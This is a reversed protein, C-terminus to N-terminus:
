YILVPASWKLKFTKLAPTTDPIQSAGAGFFLVDSDQIMVGSYPVSVTKHQLTLSPGVYADYYVKSTGKFIGTAPTFTLTTMPSLANYDYWYPDDPKGKGYRTPAKGKPMSMKGAASMSVPLGELFGGYELFLGNGKADYNLAANPHLLFDMEYGDIYWSPKKNYWGGFLDVPAFFGDSAWDKGYKYWSVTTEITRTDPDLWVLGGLSGRKSYIPVYLPACLKDDMEFWLLKTSASVSTGDALKGAFKVSGNAGITLTVYGCGYNPNGVSGFYGIDDDPIGIITTYYGKLPDLLATNQKNAFLDRAGDICLWDSGAKGGRIIGLIRNQRVELLLEEGTRATMSVMRSDDPFITDWAKASFSVTGAQLVAKATLTGTLKSVNLTLTGYLDTPPTPSDFDGYYIYGIYAGTSSLADDLDYPTIYPVDAGSARFVATLTRNGTVTFTYAPLSSVTLGNEKWASFAYGANASATVTCSTGGSKTGGGTATGGAAPSSTTAITYVPPTWTVYDVWGCDAGSSISGDKVYAWKLTHTGASLTFSRQAWASEGSIAGSQETNDIFFKLKDYSAESSVRWWFTLTGPGTVTTQLASQQNHGIAGSQAASGGYHSVASQGFWATSGSSTWTLAANDLATALPVTPAGGGTAVTYTQTLQNNSENAELTIDASDIFARYTKTGTASPATFTHTLSKTAGAALVGISAWGDGDSGVLAEASRDIWCDLYGANGSVTGQNKVTVTATVSGGPVVSSSSFSIAQVIFDPRQQVQAFNAVLTRSATVTFTYAPTTAVVVGGETWSTFTYGSNPTATLTRSAGYALGSAAGSVTGGASPSATASVTYTATPTWVVQDVWGCDFGDYFSEDKEYWWRLVHTGAPIAHTVLTWGKEGSIVNTEVGDISFCLWDFHEESSVKWWFSLAGPGVVTTQMTSITDDDDLGGSQAAHQGDHSTQTQGIWPADGGTMFALATNDLAVELPIAELATYTATLQNNNENSEETEDASDVFARYTKIGAGPPVAFAHHFTHSAAAALTNTRYVWADGDSGVPMENVEDLWVDTYGPVGPGSGINKITISATMSGGCTASPSSFTISEVIFDPLSATARFNATLTRAGTVTFTYSPSTSMVNAGETWNVFAYGSNASATVTCTSGAVKSGGGTATGGASPSAATTITYSQTTPVWSAMDVFGADLGRNVSGDKSYTWTLTHSGSGLTVSRQVWSLNEGSISAQATGDVSFTLFDYNAESSVAWQFSFTGPGTVTTQLTSSQNYSILGSQAADVNDKTTTTQGYWSATGSTTWTLGAGDLATALPISAAFNATLTKNGTVTFTYAASSSVVTSGEKWNVFAYGSNPTATLTCSSGSAVVGGGTVTGGASPVATATVTYTPVFNATLTRNGTVTFAYTASTSVVTSGEKWNVFAYGSSPTATLTCSSGAPVSGAGSVSGSASPVASASITYSTVTPTWVVQDVWGCDSGVSVIHDKVYAWQVTHSGAAISYTKQQWDVTGSIAGSQEAGDIYFKLFDYTAESSVKWWFTLTGPGTVTTQMISSQSNGIPGSQAASAGNKKTATQGFWGAGSGSSTFTLSTNDLATQLSITTPVFCATLTQADNLTFTYSATTSVVTGAANKWHVFSHGSAPTATVTRSSGAAFTGGGSTTGGATPSSALTITYNQTTPTWVVRDVFGADSGGNVSGDKIYTWQLTHSGSGSVTYSKQAWSITPGSIAAKEAGDLYFKLWDYNAESSVAWYFTLTGPGTVTTQLTSSQNHGIAGSRAADVGDSTVSSQGYWLGSGSTTWTLGTTDLATALTINGATFNATLTRSGTVTFSYSASSSVVTSGETWNVFSYGSNPTATVTCSANATKTGGGSVSGGASPSASLTVTYSGSTAGLTLDQGWLNGVTSDTSRRLTVSREASTQSGSIAKLKLTESTTTGNMAYSYMGKANTTKTALLTGSNNRIEVSTGSVPSGSANLVRGSLLKMESSPFINYVLTAIFNFEYETGISPLTYWVDSVGAWGMNLHTYLSGAQYGYGDALIAHGNYLENGVLKHIALFVPFNNDLNVFLANQTDIASIGATTGASIRAASTYKFVSKLTDPVDSPYAGTGGANNAKYDSKLAVGTDYCIKGIAQRQTASLSAGKPVDVMSGWAYTGGKMTLNQTVNNVKCSFTGASISATPYAHFKMLQSMATATCGCVYNRTDGDPYTTPPTYYNYVAVGNEVSQNWKTQVLPSVRVDSPLTVSAAAVGPMAEQLLDAWKVKPSVGQTEKTAAPEDGDPAAVQRALAQPVQAQKRGAMDLMLMAYLPNEPSADFAEGASFAIVPEVDTDASTVVFGGEELQVVHFLAEDAADAFTEAKAVTRGIDAGMPKQERSLWNRVATQAQERSVPAALSLGPLVVTVVAAMLVNFVASMFRKKGM